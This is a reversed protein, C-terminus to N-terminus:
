KKPGRIRVHRFVLHILHQPTSRTDTKGFGCSHHKRRPAGTFGLPERKGLAVKDGCVFRLSCEIHLAYRNLMRKKTALEGDQTRDLKGDEAYYTSDEEVLEGFGVAVSDGERGNYGLPQGIIVSLKDQIFVIDHRDM